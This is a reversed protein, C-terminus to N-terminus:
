NKPPDAYKKTEAHMGQDTRKKTDAHAKQRITKNHKNKKVVNHKKQQM